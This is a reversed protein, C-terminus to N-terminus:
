QSRILTFRYLILPSTITPVSICTRDTSSLPGPVITQQHCHGQYLLTRMAGLDWADFQSQRSCSGFKTYELMHM